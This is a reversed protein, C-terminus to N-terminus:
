TNEQKGDWSPDTSGLLGLLGHLGGTRWRSTGPVPSLHRAEGEEKGAAGALAAEPVAPHLPRQGVLPSFVTTFGFCL